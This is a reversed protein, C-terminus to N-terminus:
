VISCTSILAAPRLWKVQRDIQGVHSLDPIQRFAGDDLRRAQDAPHAHLSYVHAQQWFRDGFQAAALDCDDAQAHVRGNVAITLSRELAQQQVRDDGIQVRRLPNEVITQLGVALM